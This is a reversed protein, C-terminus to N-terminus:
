SLGHERIRRPVFIKQNVNLASGGGGGTFTLSESNLFPLRVKM